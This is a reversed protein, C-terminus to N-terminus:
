VCRFPMAFWIGAAGAHCSKSISGGAMKWTRHIWRFLFPYRNVTLADSPFFLHARRLMMECHEWRRCIPNKVAIPQLLYPAACRTFTQTASPARCIRGGFLSKPLEVWGILNARFASRAAAGKRTACRNSTSPSFTRTTSHAPVNGAVSGSNKPFKGCDRSRQIRRSPAARIEWFNGDWV